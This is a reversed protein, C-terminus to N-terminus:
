HPPPRNEEEQMEPEDCNVERNRCTSSNTSNSACSGAQWDVDDDDVDDDVDEAADGEEEEVYLHHASHSWGADGENVTSKIQHITM